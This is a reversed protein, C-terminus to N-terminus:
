RVMPMLWLSVAVVHTSGQHMRHGSIEPSPLVPCVSMISGGAEGPIRDWPEQQGVQSRHSSSLGSGVHQYAPDLQQSTAMQASGTPALAAGQGGAWNQLERNVKMQEKVTTGM